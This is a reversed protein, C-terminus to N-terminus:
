NVSKIKVSEKKGSPTAYNATDGAEKGLIAKGLPSEVSLKNEKPDAEQPSVITYEIDKRGKVVTVTSGIEATKSNVNKLIKANELIQEIENIRAVNNEYEEQSMSWASNESLDGASRAEAMRKRIDLMKPGKREALENKLQQVGEATLQVVKDM